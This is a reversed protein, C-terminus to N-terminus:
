EVTHRDISFGRLHQEHASKWEVHIRLMERSQRRSLIFALQPLRDLADAM